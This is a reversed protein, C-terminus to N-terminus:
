TKGGSSVHIGEQDSATKIVLKGIKSKGGEVYIFNEKKTECIPFYRAEVESAVVCDEDYAFNGKEIKEGIPIDDENFVIIRFYFVSPEEFSKERLSCKKLVAYEEQDFIYAAFDKELFGEELLCDFLVGRLTAAEFGKVNVESHFYMYNGIFVSTGVMILVLFWWFSLYKEAGKKNM